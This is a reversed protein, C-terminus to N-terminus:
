HSIRWRQWPQLIRWRQRPQLPLPYLRELYDLIDPEQYSGSPSTVVSLWPAWQPIQQQLKAQLRSGEARFMIELFPMPDKPMFDSRVLTNASWRERTASHVENLPVVGCGRISLTGAKKSGAENMHFPSQDVNDVALDYGLLRRAM